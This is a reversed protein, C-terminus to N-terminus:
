YQYEPYDVKFYKARFFYKDAKTLMVKKFDMEEMLLDFCNKLSKDELIFMLIRRLLRMREKMDGVTEAHELMQLGYDFWKLPMRHRLFKCMWQFRFRYADDEQLIFCILEKLQGVKKNGTKEEVVTMARYIEKVAPVMREYPVIDYKGKNLIALVNPFSIARLYEMIADGAVKDELLRWADNFIQNKIEHKLPSLAGYLLIGRPYGPFPYKEGEMQMVYHGEEHLYVKAFVSDQTKWYKVM